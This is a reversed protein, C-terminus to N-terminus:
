SEISFFAKMNDKYNKGNVEDSEQLHVKSLCPRIKATMM